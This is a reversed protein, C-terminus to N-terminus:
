ESHPTENAYGVDTEGGITGEKDMDWGGVGLLSFLLFPYLEGDQNKGEGIVM